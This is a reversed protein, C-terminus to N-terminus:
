ITGAFGGNGYAQLRGNWGSAPLWVEIKIDSDVSPTSTIAVRCFAPLSKFFADRQASPPRPFVPPPPTFAGAAVSEVSTVKANKLTLQALRECSQPSQAVTACVLFLSVFALALAKNM